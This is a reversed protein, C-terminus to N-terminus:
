RKQNRILSIHPWPGVPSTDVQVPCGYSRSLVQSDVVANPKGCAAVKGNVLLLLRDAYMAALNIDHSVVVVTTGREAQLTALLEMTRIQHALDLAATPEDLLILKPQQCIARAIQARQREGGSLRSVPRNALHTLGADEIAQGAIALDAEGEVGLVGLYPSRGMLVMEQVTFPSDEPVSQSVYAIQRALAKHTYQKLPCDNFIISGSSLPLLGALARILTSKGSGNPGIIIFIENPRVAFSLDEFVPRGSYACTIQKAQITM